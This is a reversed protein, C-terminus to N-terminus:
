KLNTTSVYNYEFFANYIYIFKMPINIDPILIFIFMSTHKSIVYLNDQKEHMKCYAYNYMMYHIRGDQISNVLVQEGVLSM